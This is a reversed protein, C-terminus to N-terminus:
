SNYWDGLTSSTNAGLISTVNAAWASFNDGGTWLRAFTAFDFNTSYVSSMGTFILNLEHYLAGWGDSVSAYITVGASNAVGLGIDGNVLDGPNNARTPVAGPIGFGEAQAIAQALAVIKANLPAATVAGGLAGTSSGDGQGSSELLLSAIAVLVVAIIITQGM